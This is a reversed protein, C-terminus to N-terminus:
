EYVKNEGLFKFKYTKCNEMGDIVERPDLSDELLYDNLQEEKEEFSLVRDDEDKSKTLISNLFENDFLKEKLIERVLDYGTSVTINKCFFIDGNDFIEKYWGDHSERDDTEVSVYVKFEKVFSYCEGNDWTYDGTYDEDSFCCIVDTGMDNIFKLFKDPYSWATQGSIRVEKESIIEGEFNDIDWKTGWNACFCDYWNKEEEPPIPRILGMFGLNSSSRNASITANLIVEWVDDPCRGKKININIRTWNPM